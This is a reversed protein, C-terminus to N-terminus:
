RRLIFKQKWNAKTFDDLFLTCWLDDLSAEWFNLWEEHNKIKRVLSDPKSSSLYFEVSILFTVLQLDLQKTDIKKGIRKHTVEIWYVLHKEM